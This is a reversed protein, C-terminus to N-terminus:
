ATTPDPQLHAPPPEKAGWILMWVMALEGIGLVM